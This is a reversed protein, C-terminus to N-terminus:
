VNKYSNISDVINKITGWSVNYERSLDSKSYNKTSYKEKIEKVVSKSVLKEREWKNVRPKRM